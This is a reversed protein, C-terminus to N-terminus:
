QDSHPVQVSGVRVDNITFIKLTIEYVPRVPRILVKPPGTRVGRTLGDSNKEHKWNGDTVSANEEDADGPPFLCLCTWTRRFGNEKM